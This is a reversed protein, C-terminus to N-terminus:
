AEFAQNVRLFRGELDIVVFPQTTRDLLRSLFRSEADVPPRLGYYGYIRQQYAPELVNPWAQTTTYTPVQRFQQETVNM